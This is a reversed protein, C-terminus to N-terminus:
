HRQRITNPSKVSAEAEEDYTVANAMVYSLNKYKTTLTM